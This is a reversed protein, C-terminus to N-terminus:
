FVTQRSCAISAPSCNAATEDSFYLMVNRLLIGDFREARMALPPNLASQRFTCPARLEPKVQWMDGTQTFYKTAMPAPLGRNIEFRSYQGSKAQDIVEACIDTGVIAIKWDRLNPFNQLLVMALSYAEQGTSCGASWFTLKKLHRRNHIIAPLLDLRLLDFPRVDRFFSTENITMAEAIARSLLPRNQSRLVAVLEALSGFGHEDLLRGLRAEFLYDRRPDLRNVSQSYVVERLFAFDAPTCAM